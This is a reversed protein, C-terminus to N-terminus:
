ESEQLEALEERLEKLRDANYESFKSDFIPEDDPGDLRIVTVTLVMDKRDKPAEGWDGFMNPSLKWTASERPELGGRIRYNFDDEVWPVARGPTALVGHFYARAIPYATENRVTLEIVPERLFGDQSFYFRSREVKFQELSDKAAEASKLEGELEQIEGMMQERQKRLRETKITEAEAIIQAATKGDLKDGARRLLGPPDAMMEFLNENDSTALVVLANEFEERESASMGEKAANISEQLSEESSADIKKESSCGSCLIVAVAIIPARGIRLM